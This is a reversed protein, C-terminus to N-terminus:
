VDICIYYICCCNVNKLNSDVASVSKFMCWRVSSRKCGSGVDFGEDSMWVVDEDVLVAGNSNGRNGSRGV